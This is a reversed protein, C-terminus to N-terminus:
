RPGAPCARATPSVAPFALPLADLCARGVDAVELRRPEVRPSSRPAALTVVSGPLATALAWDSARWCTVGALWASSLGLAWAATGPRGRGIGALVAAVLVADAVLWGLGADALHWTLASVAAGVVAVGLLARRRARADRAHRSHSPAAVVCTTAADRLPAAAADM